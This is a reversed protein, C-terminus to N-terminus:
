WHKDCDHQLLRAGGLAAGVDALQRLLGGDLADAEALQRVVDDRLALLRSRVVAIPDAPETM